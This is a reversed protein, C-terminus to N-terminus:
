RREKGFQNMLKEYLLPLFVLWSLFIGTFFLNLTLSTLHFIFYIFWASLIYRRKFFILPILLHELYIVATGLFDMWNQGVIFDRMFFMARDDGVAIKIQNLEALNAIEFRGWDWLSIDIVKTFGSLFYYGIFILLVMSFFWGSEKSYTLPNARNSSLIYSEKGRFIFLLLVIQMPIFIEDIDAGMSFIFGLLYMSLIYIILYNLKKYGGGVFLTVVLMFELFLQLYYLITQTPFPILWHIWHFTALDVIPKFGLAVYAELFSFTNGPYVIALDEPMMGFISYDRSLFKWLLILLIVIRTWGVFSSPAPEYLKQNFKEVINM